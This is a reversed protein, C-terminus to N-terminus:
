PEPAVPTAPRHQPHTFLRYRRLDPRWTYTLVPAEAPPVGQGVEVLDANTERGEQLVHKLLGGSAISRTKHVQRTLELFWAPDNVMDSPKVAYKLTEPVARMLIDRQTKDGKHRSKVTRVDVQPFYSVGLSLAWLKVWLGHPVYDHSLMSPSVMLLVHYHPHAEGTASRTIETTRIWGQVHRLEKRKLLKCWSKHMLDLTSRLETVPCNRVTLTLFLWRSGPHEELLGPLAKMFRAKWMLSRRWQCVPCHRVRCFRASKLQLFPLGVPDTLLAFQLLGSCESLRRAYREFEAGEAYIRQVQQCQERHVRWPKDRPSAIELDDAFPNCLDDIAIAHNLM